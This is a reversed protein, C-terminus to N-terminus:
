ALYNLYSGFLLAKLVVRLCQLAKSLLNHASAPTISMISSIEAYSLDNFYKLVIIERQRKSIKTLATTVKSKNDKLYDQSILEEEVSSECESLQCDENMDSYLKRDRTIHQILLNRFSKFLYYKVSDVESLGERRNWINTFLEQVCDKVLERNYCFHMGYNFLLNSFRQYLNSFALDNGKRVSQWLARDDSQTKRDTKPSRSIFLNVPSSM